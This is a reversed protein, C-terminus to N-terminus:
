PCRDPMYGKPPRVRVVPRSRVSASFHVLPWTSFLSLQLGGIALFFASGVKRAGLRDHVQLSRHNFASIRSVTWEVGRDALHRCAGAWLESFARGMRFRPQVYVDFDWAVTQAPEPVFVCRVEDEEYAGEQIWLFGAFEGGLTAVFCRAGSAFRRAIVAQPRPFQMVVPHDPTAIEVKLRKSGPRGSHRESISATPQAVLHYKIIRSRGSTLTELTRSMVFSAANWWSLKTGEAAVRTKSGPPM